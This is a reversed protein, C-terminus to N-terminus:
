GWGVLLAVTPATVLAAAALYLAAVAGRPLPDPDLLRRVRRTVVLDSVRTSPVGRGATPAPAPAPQTPGSESGALAVKALAAALDSRPARGAAVDDALMETLAAVSARAQRVGPIAGLSAAWATFPLALLDHRARLHAREHEMVARLEAPSLLAILGASLVVRSHRGPLTYAVAMGSDIIRVGPPIAADLPEERRPERIGSRVSDAQRRSGADSHDRSHTGEAGSLPEGSGARTAGPPEVVRDTLLDLVERHARRRRVTLVACWLLVALLAGAIVAATVGAAVQWRTLGRWPDGALLNGLGARLGSVLDPGLPAVAVVVGAGVLALGATLCVAQWLVLSARPARATWGARALWASLPSTLVLAAVLLVAVLAPVTTGAGSTM